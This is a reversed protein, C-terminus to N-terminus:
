GSVLTENQQTVKLKNVVDEVTKSKPIQIISWAFWIATLIGVIVFIAQWTYASFGVDKFETTVFAVIVTLLIGLPTSWARRKGIYQLHELLCLRLKDETTMIVEQGLNDYIKKVRVLKGALSEITIKAKEESVELREKKRFYDWRGWLM